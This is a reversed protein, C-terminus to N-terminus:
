FLGTIKTPDLKAFTVDEDERDADRSPGDLLDDLIDGIDVKKPNRFDPQYSPKRVSYETVTGDSSWIGDFFLDREKKRRPIIEPPKKWNMFSARAASIEDNKFENVWSARAIGGTNYHFSLAAAFQAESLKHGTFARKVAPAYKTRLLWEFVELCRRMSQPNDKYRRFVDHGSATTVGVSWTWVGVSDKYAERVIAEHAVLELATKATIDSM